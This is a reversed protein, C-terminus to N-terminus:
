RLMVLPRLSALCERLARVDKLGLEEANLLDDLGDVTKQKKGGLVLNDLEITTAGTKTLSRFLFSWYLLCLSPCSIM